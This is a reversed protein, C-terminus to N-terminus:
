ERGGSVAPRAAADPERDALNRMMTPRGTPLYSLGAAAVEAPDLINRGDVIVPRAMQARILPLDLRQFEDWETCIVLCDAGTAARYPDPALELDPIEHKANMEARPDFAIVSAGASLFCRALSLAPASRVDDTDPKFSLGLLAIRKGELSDFLGQVKAAVAEHAEANVRLVERLLRFDYGMRAALRELATVDKPLCYGGFGLGARLFDEGIRPDRGMIEATAVVDASSLECVRALANIFSIKLGLFANCALKSLEATERDTEIFVAGNGLFPGYLERMSDRAWSSDTGVVIRSPHVADDMANGERLFEPNSVVAIELDQHSKEAAIVRGIWRSTGVPVTSKQAVVVRGACCRAIYGAASEVATLDTEGSQRPPTGVCIFVLEAERLAEEPRSTFRLMGESLLDALAERVGPEYFHVVGRRLQDIKREDVDYGIVDHGISALSVCTILGVHGNGLVGVRM